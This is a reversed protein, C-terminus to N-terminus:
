EKGIIKPLKITEKSDTTLPTTYPYHKFRIPENIYSHMIRINGTIKESQNIMVIGNEYNGHIPIDYIRFDYSFGLKIYSKLSEDLEMDHPVFIAIRLDDCLKVLGDSVSIYKDVAENIVDITIRQMHM